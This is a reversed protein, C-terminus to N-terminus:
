MNAKKAMEIEKLKERKAMMHQNKIGMIGGGWHKRLTVNNNFQEKFTKQLDNFDNMDEKRVETLAVCTATKTHCLRGLKAKSKVFCYAIDKKRCLAPLHIMIELPDVDGAMVVLKAKGEEALTTVHNLGFKLHMPKPTSHGKAGAKKAEAEKQLRAKKDKANEPSYKDLLKELKSFQNKDICSQFQALVPPSKLRLLMIRKQRQIKVYKPWRVFRTMDKKPQINGGIRFNRPSKTFLSGASGSKGGATAVGKKAAVKKPM